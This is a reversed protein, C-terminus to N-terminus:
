RIELSTGHLRKPLVQAVRDAHELLIASEGGDGHQGECQADARVGYDKANQVRQDDVRQVHRVGFAEVADLM